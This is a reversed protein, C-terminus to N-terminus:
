VDMTIPSSGFRASDVFTQIGVHERRTLLWSVPADALLNAVLGGVQIRLARVVLELQRLDVRM